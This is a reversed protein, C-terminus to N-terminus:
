DQLQLNYMKQSETKKYKLINWNTPVRFGVSRCRRAIDLISKNDSKNILCKNISM